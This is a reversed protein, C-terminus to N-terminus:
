REIILRSMQKLCREKEEIVPQMRLSRATVKMGEGTKRAAWVCKYEANGGKAEYVRL